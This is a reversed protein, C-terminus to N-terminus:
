VPALTPVANLKAEIKAQDLNKGIFLLQTKRTEEKKWARDFFTEFRDGVGQLILRLSKDFVNVFGKVRYIEQDRVLKQLCTLLMEPDYHADSSWHFSTISEDHQHDEDEDHHSDREEIDEEVAAKFGLVIKPSLEGHDCSLMKVGLRIHESLLAKIKKLQDNNILDTKTLVVLDACALQDVLLEEMPTEHNIVAFEDRPVSISKLTAALQGHVLAHTDVVTVVGDVTTNNRIEPWRFAQVLPKPLALGSTEIVICDLDDRRQLLEEMIPFFDEQVTCCLCGNNLEIIPLPEKGTKKDCVQSDRLLDGDIGVDGFENVLVAIRRGRKNQLLHRILTTKGAGLFGTIVTVPVKQM